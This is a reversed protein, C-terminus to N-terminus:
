SRERLWNRWHEPPHVLQEFPFQLPILRNGDYIELLETKEVITIDRMTEMNLWRDKVVEKFIM